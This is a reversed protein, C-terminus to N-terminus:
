RAEPRQSDREMLEVLLEALGIDSLSQLSLDALSLDLKATLPNPVAVCRLGARKAALIGNPSDEFAVAEEPKVQFDELVARYLDPEPKAREGDGWCRICDFYEDIRLRTLHRTVWARSSSSAVGLKLGMQKGEHLYDEVGPLLTQHRLLEDCRMRVRELCATRDLQHGSHEVLHGVLDFDSRTGIMRAFIDFSLEGGNEQYLEQWARFEPGETDIILGDLDFVLAQIM